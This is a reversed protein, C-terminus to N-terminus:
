APEETLLRDLLSFLADRDPDDEGLRHSLYDRVTQELTRAGAGGDGASVRGNGNTSIPDSNRDYCRPFIRDLEALVAPLNDRGPQYRVELKVLARDHDPYREALTPLQGHPDEITVRYIPTAELPMWRPEGERGHPGVDVIVIGKQEDAEGLDMRDISGCYRVHSLNMLTQPRHVDGLAVYAYGTPLEGNQLVIADAEGLRAGNAMEAGSSIIHAALVTHKTKDYAAESQFRDLRRKYAAKLARNREEPSSFRQAQGHLYRAVTPSPM